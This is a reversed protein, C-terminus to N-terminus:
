KKYENLYKEPKNRDLGIFKKDLSSGSINYIILNETLPQATSVVTGYPDIICSAGVGM